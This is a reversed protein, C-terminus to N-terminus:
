RVHPPLPARCRSGSVPKMVPRAPTGTAAHRFPLGLLAATTQTAPTDFGDLGYAITAAHRAPTFTGCLRDWWSVLNGYNTDTYRADRSHHVKHMNPWTVVLSLRDGLQRPLRINAHELLGSLASAVRYLAFAEPGVGLPFAFAALFVYRIAGEGPHQRITTTVDVAPDAHHVQHFRWLGPIKHMAVHAVYFSLDLGLLVVVITLWPPLALMSLLGFGKTQLVALTAVLAVNLFANTAFTLFTLTLNPGLHARHWRGRVQLPIATEILAIAAMVALIICVTSLPDQGLSSQSATFPAMFAEKHL